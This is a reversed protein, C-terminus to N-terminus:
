GAHAYIDTTRNTDGAALNDADSEFAVLSGDGSIAANASYADAQAGGAGVSVRVTKGTQSDHLFIDSVLNSDGPVINWADSQFAVYRGDSSMTVRGDAGNTQDGHSTVSIRWTHKAALNREFVDYASNTDGAVLDGGDSVFAVLNGDASVAPDEACGNALRGTVSRNVLTMRRTRMDRELINSEDECPVGKVMTCGWSGYVVYRGTASLVPSFGDGSGTGDLMPDALATTGAALNRVFIDCCLGTANVPQSVLNTAMSAFAVTSGDASVAPQISDSNAGRGRPSVSVRQTVGTSVVHVFVDTHGETDGAVLNTADSQFAVVDGDASISPDFSGGNAQGGDSALSVRRTQGTVLDRVFVDSTDNTDGRVLNSAYSSFAVYRGDASVSPSSSGSNPNGGGRSVSVRETVGSAGVAGPVIALGVIVVMAAILANRRGTGRGDM